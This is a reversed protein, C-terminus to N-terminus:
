ECLLQILDLINVSTPWNALDALFADSLGGQYIQFAGDQDSSFFLRSGSENLALGAFGDGNADSLQKTIMTAPDYLFLEQSADGNGGVPDADSVFALRGGLGSLAVQTAGAGTSTTIQTWTGTVYRFVETNGDANTGNHDSNSLVALRTGSADIAIGTVNGSDLQNTSPGNRDYLYLQQTTTGRTYAIQDGDGDIAVADVTPDVGRPLNGSIMTFTQGGIDYIFAETANNPNLGAIDADSIFVLTSGDASIAPNSSGVAASSSDTVQTFSGDYLFIELLGAGNQGSLDATSAFALLSGDASISPQSSAGTTTNTVQTYAETGTNFAFIESNGDTNTGVPDATSQFWVSSGMQNSSPYQSVGGTLSPFLDVACENDRNLISLDAPDLVNYNTDTSTVPGLAVTYSVDGDAVADDQGVIQFFQSTNWNAATFTLSSGEQNFTVVGESTDTSSISLTVDGDPITALQVSGEISSGDEGTELLGPLEFVFGSVDGNDNNLCAVDPVDIGNYLPDTSSSDGTLITYVQDGDDRQDDVGTVTVTQATDWNAATFTYTLDGTLPPSGVTGEATNSSALDITVDATPESDLVITFTDTGGDETTILPVQSPTLTIGATDDDANLAQLDDLELGSYGPDQSVSDGTVVTYIAPGDDVDDDVGTVTVTQVTDWNLSSFTISPTSLTGESTDTSTFGITVERTPQSDLVVTFSDSTGDEATNLTDPATVTIGATDGNDLNTCQVDPVDLNNYQPDTSVANSHLIVYFVDGDATLDDQGTVTVTQATDWNAPTFTLQSVSPLGEEPTGSTVGISVDATPVANLVVTYTPMQDGDESTILPVASPTVTVGAMDGDDNNVCAVDDPDLTNYAPDSSSVPQNVITYNVNGDALFDNQGTVTVTQPTDWNASTFVLTTPAPVGENENTSFLTQTVDAIPESNLVVTYTATGGEETTVLPITQPTVTIGATDTDDTCTVSVDAVGDATIADYVPDSSSPDGTTITFPVDGDDIDDDVGTVTVTIPDTGNAVTFTLSMPSVTGETTDSSSIPLVVDAVPTTNLSVNFNASTGTESVSLTTPVVTIGAVDDDQNTVSVDAPDIGNYLPDTSATAGTTITYAVDGDAVGDDVGTITVTQATDWNSSTFSLGSTDPTGESSDSSTITLTVDNAPPADLVVTFSAQGGAESTTLGTTPSVTVGPVLAEGLLEFAMDPETPTSDTAPDVTITCTSIRKGWVNHCAGGNGNGAFILYNQFWGSEFGVFTGTDPSASSETWGWQQNETGSNYDMNAQVSIWYTGPALSLGGPIVISFDGDGFDTYGLEEGAYIAAATNTTDPLETGGDHAFIYVNVSAAPGPNPAPPSATSFYSGRVNVTDIDWRVVSSPVVFDDAAFTRLFAGDPGFGTFHQSTVTNAIPATGSFTSTLVNGVGSQFNPLYTDLSTAQIQDTALDDDQSFGGMTILLLTAFATIRM